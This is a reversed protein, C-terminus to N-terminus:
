ARALHIPRARRYSLAAWAPQAARAFRVAAAVDAATMLAARGIEEGTAVSRHSVIQRPQEAPLTQHEDTM